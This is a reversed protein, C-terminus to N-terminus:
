ANKYAEYDETQIAVVQSLQMAELQQLYADWEEDIGGEVVWHAYQAEM